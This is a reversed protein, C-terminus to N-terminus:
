VQEPLPLRVNIAPRRQGLNFGFDALPGFLKPGFNVEALGILFALQNSPNLFGLAFKVHNNQVGGSIGMGADRKSVRNGGNFDGGDFDMKGVDM